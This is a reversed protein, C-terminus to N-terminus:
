TSGVAPTLAGEVLKVFDQRRLLRLIRQQTASFAAIGVVADVPELAVMRHEVGHWLIVCGGAARINRFWDVNPGYTLEIMFGDPLPRAIIPTEFSRGSRRGAHRVIAFPGRTSRAIRLTLPNLTHKLIRGIFPRRAAAGSM